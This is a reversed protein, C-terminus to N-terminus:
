VLREEWWVTLRKAAKADYLHAIAHSGTADVFTMASADKLIESLLVGEDYLADMKAVVILMPVDILGTWNASTLDAQKLREESVKGGDDGLAQVWSWEIWSGPSAGLLGYMNWSDTKTAPDITAILPTPRVMPYLMCISAPLMGRSALRCAAHGALYAGASAGAIHIKSPNIGHESSMEGRFFEYVSVVDDVPAPFRSEPALKYDVSAWCMSPAFAKFFGAFLGDKYDMCTLGGGHMWIVVPLDTGGGVPTHLKVNIASGGASSPVVVDHVVWAGEVHGDYRGRDAEAGKERCEKLRKFAEEKSVDPAAITHLPLLKRLLKNMGADGEALEAYIAELEAEAGGSAPLEPQAKGQCRRRPACCSAIFAAFPKWHRRMRRVLASRLPQTRPPARGLPAPPGALLPGPSQVALM